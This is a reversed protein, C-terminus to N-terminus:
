LLGKSLPENLNQEGFFENLTVLDKATPKGLNINPDNTLSKEYNNEADCYCFPQKNQREGRNKINNQMNFVSSFFFLYKLYNKKHYVSDTHM